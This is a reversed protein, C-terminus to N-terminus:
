VKMFALHKGDGYFEDLHRIYALQDHLINRVVLAFYYTEYFRAEFIYREM